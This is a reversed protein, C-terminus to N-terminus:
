RKQAFGGVQWQRLQDILLHDTLDLNLPTVSVVKERYVANCDSGPIDDTTAADGGIWYYRRGRPDVNEVVVNGYNRRGLHTVAFGALEGAPFNV